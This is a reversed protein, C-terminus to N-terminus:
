SRMDSDAGFVARVQGWTRKGFMTAPTFHSFLIFNEVEPTMVGQTVTWDTVHGRDDITLVVVVKGSMAPGIARELRPFEGEGVVQGDPDTFVPAPPEVTSFHAYTVSPILAAFMLLASVLGGAVPLAVPRMLNGLKLRTLSRWNEFRAAWTIRALRRSREHSALVQLKGQLMAPVASASLSRLAARQIRMTEYEANCVRCTDLHALAAERQEGAVRRDLLSSILPQVNECSM